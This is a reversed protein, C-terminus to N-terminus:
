APAPTVFMVKVPSPKEENVAGADGLVVIPVLAVASVYATRTLGQMPPLVPVVSVQSSFTVLPAVAPACVAKSTFPEATPENAFANVTAPGDIVEIAGVDSDTPAGTPVVMTM